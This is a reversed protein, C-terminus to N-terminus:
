AKGGSRIGKAGSDESDRWLEASKKTVRKKVKLRHDVKTLNKAGQSGRASEVEIAVHIWHEISARIFIWRL